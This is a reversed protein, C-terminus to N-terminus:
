RLTISFRTGLDRHSVSGMTRSHPSRRSLFCDAIQLRCDAIVNHRVHSVLYHKVVDGLKVSLYESDIAHVQAKARAYRTKDTRIACPFRREHIQHGAQEPGRATPNCDQTRRGILGFLEEAFNSVASLEIG